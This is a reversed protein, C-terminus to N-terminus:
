DVRVGRWEDKTATVDVINGDPDLVKFSRQPAVDSSFANREKINDKSFKAGWAELRRLCAVLDEVIVGFHIYENGEELLPRESNPPQQLLTINNVGDSLDLGLGSPRLGLYKWGFNTEYFDRSREMDRCRIALHRLHAM